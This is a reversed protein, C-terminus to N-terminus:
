STKLRGIQQHEGVVVDLVPDFQREFQVLLESAQDVFVYLVISRGQQPTRVCVPKEGSFAAGWLVGMQEADLNGVADLLRRTERDSEALEPMSCRGDIQAVPGAVIFGNAPKEPMATDLGGDAEVAAELRDGGAPHKTLNNALM